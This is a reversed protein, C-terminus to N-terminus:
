GARCLSLGGQREPCLEPELKKLFQGERGGEKGEGMDPLQYIDTIKMIRLLGVNMHKGGM